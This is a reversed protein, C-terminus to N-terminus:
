YPRAGMFRELAAIHEGEESCFVEALAVVEAATATAAIRAYFDRGRQEARLSQQMASDLDLINGDLSEPATGEPWLYDAMLLDSMQRAGARHLVQKFHLEAYNAMERLFAAVEPIDRSAAAEALGAYHRHAEFELKAAHSLFTSLNM